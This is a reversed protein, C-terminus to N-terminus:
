YPKYYKFDEKTLLDGKGTYTKLSILKGDKSLLSDYRFHTNNLLQLDPTNTWSTVLNGEEDYEGKWHTATNGCIGEEINLIWETCNGQEDYKFSKAGAKILNGGLDYQFLISDIQNQYDISVLNLRSNEDYHFQETRILKKSQSYQLRMQIRGKEDFKYRYYHGELISPVKEFLLNGFEDFELRGILSDQGNYHISTISQIKQSRISDPHFGLSFNNPLNERIQQPVLKYYNNNILDSPYTQEFLSDPIDSAQHKGLMEEPSPSKCSALLIVIVILKKM